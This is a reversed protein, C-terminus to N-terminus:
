FVCRFLNKPLDLPRLLNPVASSPVSRASRSAPVLSKPTSSKGSMGSADPAFEPIQSSISISSLTSLPPSPLSPLLLNPCPSSFSFPPLISGRVPMTLGCATDLSLALSLPSSGIAAATLPGLLATVSCTRLGYNTSWASSFPTYIPNHSRFHPTTHTTSKAHM